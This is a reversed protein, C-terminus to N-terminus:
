PFEEGWRLPLGGTRRTAAVIEFRVVRLAGPFAARDWGEWLVEARAAVQLRVGTPPDVFLLGCRPELQLNGLTNFFSNGAYDPVLLAGGRVQVFGAPGGRHSVDVGAAAGGAHGAQPHTSAIFFTDAAAVQALAAADLTVLRDIREPEAQVAPVYVVERAHIYKPCNGFSQGVRVSFGHDDCDVVTGNMRNRRRTHAQLGLLAVPAGQRVHDGDARADVSLLRPDPSHVFGPPGALVSAWPQGEGDLAGALLWPLLSFFERHQEPMFDRLVRPGVEQMRQAVGARVQLAREGAHWPGQPHNM